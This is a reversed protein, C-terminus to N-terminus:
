RARKLRAVEAMAEDRQVAFGMCAERCEALQLRVRDSLARAADREMQLQAVVQGVRVPDFMGLSAVKYRKAEAELVRIRDYLDQVTPTAQDGARNADESMM